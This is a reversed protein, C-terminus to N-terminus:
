TTVLRCFTEFVTSEGIALMCGSGEPRGPDLNGCAPCTMAVRIVRQRSPDGWPGYTVTDSPGYLHITPRGTAVALHLPGSDVGLVAISQEFVAALERITTEGGLTPLPCRALADIRRLLPRESNSGTLVVAYGADVIREAVRAWREAPWLKVRAGSGPHIVVFRRDVAHEALLRSARQRDQDDIEWILPAHAADVPPLEVARGLRRAAADLVACNRAVAHLRDVSAHDTVLQQMVPLDSGAVIPAGSQRAALAGWWHDDRLVVVAAPRRERILRAAEFLLRYPETPDGAHARTFGPFPFTIIEDVNTDRAVIARSWPGIMLTIRWGPMQERFRKLAPRVFLLDGLHDPRILVVQRTDPEYTEVPRRLLAERVVSRALARMM